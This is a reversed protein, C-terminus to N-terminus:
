HIIFSKVNQWLHGFQSSFKNVDRVTVWLMLLLLLLFGISNAYREFIKNLKRKRIKEIILFFIRGGDLAPFPLLNVIALNVSLIATFNLVYTIGLRAADGTLVAIGVPGTISGLLSRDVFLNQILLGLVFIIQLILSITGILGHYIATYWPYSIKAVLGLLVGVPGEGAPPTARPIVKIDLGEKGRNIQYDIPQGSKSVTYDQIAAITSFKINDISNIRDGVKFGAEDAPSNTSVYLIRVGPDTMIAGRSLQEGENIQTPLGVTLGISILVWALIINMSVGAVLVFFKKLATQVAFSNISNDEGDEGTIKVFGGLPIWNVSYVTRTDDAPKRSGWLIKLKKGRGNQKPLIQLGFIRPPFGFGFEEVSMGSRKAAIFHGFEHVFILLGLIAFFLVATILFM